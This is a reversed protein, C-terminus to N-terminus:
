KSDSFLGLNQTKTVEKKYYFPINTKTYKYTIQKKYFYNRSSNYDLIFTYAKGDELDIRKESTEYKVDNERTYFIIMSSLLIITFVILNFITLNKKM